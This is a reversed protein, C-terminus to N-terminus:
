TEMSINEYRGWLRKQLTHIDSWYSKSATFVKDVRKQALDEIEPVNIRTETM